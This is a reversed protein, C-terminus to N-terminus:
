NMNPAAVRANFSLETPGAVDTYDCGVIVVAECARDVARYRDVIAALAADPDAHVDDYTVGICVDHALDVGDHSLLLDVVADGQSTSRTVPRYVGTREVLRTFTDLLGLAVLSKGSYGEPSAIYISRAVGATEGSRPGPM